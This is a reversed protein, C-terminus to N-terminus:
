SAWMNANNVVSLGYIQAALIRRTHATIRTIRLDLTGGQQTVTTGIEVLLRAACHAKIVLTVHLLRRFILITKALTMAVVITITM